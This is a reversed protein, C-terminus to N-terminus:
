RAQKDGTEIRHYINDFDFRLDKLIVRLDDKRVETSDFSLVFRVAETIEASNPGLRKIDDTHKRYSPIAAHLKLSLLAQRGILSIKLNEGVEITRSIENFYEPLSMSRKTKSLMNAVDSNLWRSSLRRIRGIHAVGDVIPEPLVEPRIIDIDTTQDKFGELAMAAGGVVVLEFHDGPHKVRIWDALMELHELIEKEKLAKAM